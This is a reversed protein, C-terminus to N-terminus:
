SKKDGKAKIKYEDNLRILRETAALVSKMSAELNKMHLNPNKIFLAACRKIRAVDTIFNLNFDNVTESEELVILKKM